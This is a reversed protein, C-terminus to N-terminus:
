RGEKKSKGEGMLADIEKRIEKASKNETGVKMLHGFVKLDLPTGMEYDEPLTGQKKSREFKTRMVAYMAEGADGEEIFAKLADDGMELMKFMAARLAQSMSPKPELSEFRRVLWQKLDADVELLIKTKEAM